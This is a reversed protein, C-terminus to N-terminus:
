DITEGENHSGSNDTLYGDLVNLLNREKERIKSLGNMYLRKLEEKCMATRTGVLKREEAVLQRINSVCKALDEQLRVLEAEKESMESEFIELLQVAGAHSEESEKIQCDLSEIEEQLGEITRRIEALKAESEAVLKQSEVLASKNFDSEQGPEYMALSFKLEQCQQTRLQLEAEIKQGSLKMLRQEAVKKSEKLKSLELESVSDAEVMKLQETRMENIKNQAEKVMLEKAHREASADDLAPFPSQPIIALIQTPRVYTEQQGDDPISLKMKKKGASNSASAADLKLPNEQETEDDSHIRLRKRRHRRTRSSSRLIIGSTLSSSSKDTLPSNQASSQNKAKLRSDSSSSSRSSPKRKYGLSSDSTIEFSLSSSSDDKTQASSLSSSPVWEQSGDDTNNESSSECFLKWSSDSSDSSADRKLGEDSALSTIKRPGSYELEPILSTKLYEPYQNEPIPKTMIWCASSHTEQPSKKIHKTIAIRYRANFDCHSCKFTPTKEHAMLHQHFSSVARAWFSCHPCQYVLREILKPTRISSNSDERKKKMKETTKRQTDEIELEETSSGVSSPVHTKEHMHFRDRSSTKFSCQTCVHELDCDSNSPQESSRSLNKGTNNHVSEYHNNKETLSKSKYNCRNCFFGDLHHNTEHFTLQRITPVSYSCKSCRYRSDETHRRKHNKLRDKKNVSFNCLECYYRSSGTKDSTKSTEHPEKDSSALSPSITTKLSSNSCPYNQDITLDHTTQCHRFVSSTDRARFSCNTDPCLYYYQGKIRRKKLDSRSVGPFARCSTWIEKEKPVAKRSPQETSTNATLPHNEKVHAKLKKANPTRFSCQTCPYWNKVHRKSHQPSDKKSFLAPSPDMNNSSTETHNVVPVESGFDTKKTHKQQRLPNDKSNQPGKVCSSKRNKNHEDCKSSTQVLLQSSSKDKEQTQFQRIPSEYNRIEQCKADTWNGHIYESKIEPHHKMRHERLSIIDKSKFECSICSYHIQSLVNFHKIDEEESTEVRSNSNSTSTSFQMGHDTSKSQIANVLLNKMNETNLRYSSNASSDPCANETVAIGLSEVNGLQVTEGEPLGINPISAQSDPSHSSRKNLHAIEMEATYNSHWDHTWPFVSPVADESIKRKTTQDGHLLYIYDSQKFHLSCVATTDDNTVKIVSKDRNINIMWEKRRQVDKPIDFCVLNAPKPCSSICCKKM